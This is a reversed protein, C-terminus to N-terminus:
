SIKLESEELSKKYCNELTIIRQGDYDHMVGYFDRKNKIWILEFEIAKLIGEKANDKKLLKQADFIIKRTEIKNLCEGPLKKFFSLSRSSVGGGIIFNKGHKQTKLALSKSFDFIEDSNIEDKTLGLSRVMDGRGFIIGSLEKSEPLSMIKDFNLYGTITEINIFIEINQLGDQSFVTKLAQIYEKAAYPTEIMPAVIANVGIKKVENMEKLAKCGGIKITFGLGVQTLMEKLHLAEEFSAGEEEFEAKAGIAGYNEKLDTLLVMMQRELSNM